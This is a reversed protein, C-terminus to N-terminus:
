PTVYVPRIHFRGASTTTAAASGVGATFFPRHRRKGSDTVVVRFRRKGVAHGGTTVPYHEDFRGVELLNTDAGNDSRALLLIYSFSGHAGGFGSTNVACFFEWSGLYPVTYELGNPNQWGGGIAGSNNSTQEIMHDNGGICEWRSTAANWRMVWPTTVGGPNWLKVEGDFTGFAPLTSDVPRDRMAYVEDELSGFATWLNQLSQNISSQTARQPPPSGAGFNPIWSLLVPQGDEDFGVLCPDGRLPWLMIDSGGYMPMYALPGFTKSGDYDPLIVTVNYPWNSGPPVPVENLFPPTGGASTVAAIFGNHIPREADLRDAGTPGALTDLRDRM